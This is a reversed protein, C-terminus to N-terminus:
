PLSLDWAGHAGRERKLYGYTELKKVLRGATAEDVDLLEAIEKQNANKNSLYALTKVAQMKQEKNNHFLDTLELDMDKVRQDLTVASKVTEVTIPYSGKEIATQKICSMVYRLFRRFIGRSLQAILTLAEETFPEVTKWKKKFASVMEDPKLPKLEIISMKGMFFHRCTEFMEKQIGIVFLTNSKVWLDAINQLDKDMQSGSKKSYDPLDIFVCKFRSLFAPTDADPLFDLPTAPAYPVQPISASWHENAWDLDKEWEPTWRYFFGEKGLYNALVRLLVSKGIGQLGVVGILGKETHKVEYFLSRADKTVYYDDFNEPKWGESIREERTKEPLAYRQEATLEAAWKYVAEAKLASPNIAQERLITLIRKMDNLGTIRNHQVSQTQQARLAIMSEANKQGTM